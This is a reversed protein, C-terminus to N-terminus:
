LTLRSCTCTAALLTANAAVRLSHDSIGPNNNIIVTSVTSTIIATINTRMIITGATIIVDM